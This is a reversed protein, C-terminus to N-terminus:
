VCSLEFVTLLINNLYLWPSSGNMATNAPSHHRHNLPPAPVTMVNAQLAYKQLAGGLRFASFMHFVLYGLVLITSVGSRASREWRGMAYLPGITTWNSEKCIVLRWLLRRAILLAGALVVCAKFTAYTGEISIPKLLDAPRFCSAQCM